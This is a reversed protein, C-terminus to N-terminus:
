YIIMSLLANYIDWKITGTQPKEWCIQHAAINNDTL